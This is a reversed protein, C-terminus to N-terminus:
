PGSLHQGGRTRHRSTVAPWGTSTSAPATSISRTVRSAACSWGGVSWEGAELGYSYSRGNGVGRSASLSIYASRAGRHRRVVMSRRLLEVGPLEFSFFPGSGSSEPIVFDSEDDPYVMNLAVVDFGDEHRVEASCRVPMAPEDRGDPPTLTTYGPTETDEPECEAFPSGPRSAAIHISEEESAPAGPSSVAFTAAPMRLRLDGCRPRVRLPGSWRVRADM